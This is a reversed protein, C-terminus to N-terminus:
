VVEKSVCNSVIDKSGVIVCVCSSKLLLIGSQHAFQLAFKRLCSPDSLPRAVCLVVSFFLQALLNSEVLGYISKEPISQRSKKGSPTQWLSLESESKKQCFFNCIKLEVNKTTKSIVINFFLVCCARVRTRLLEM